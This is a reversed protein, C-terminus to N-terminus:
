WTENRRVADILLAKKILANAREEHPQCVNHCCDKHTCKSCDGSGLWEPRKKKM